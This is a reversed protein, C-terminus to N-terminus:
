PNSSEPRSYFPQHVIYDKHNKWCEHEFPLLNGEDDTLKDNKIDNNINESNCDKEM